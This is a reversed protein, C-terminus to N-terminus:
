VIEGLSKTVDVVFIQFLEFFLELENAVKRHADYRSPAIAKVEIAWAAASFTERDKVFQFALLNRVLKEIRTNDQNLTFQFTPQNANALTSPCGAQPTTADHWSLKASQHWDRLSPRATGHTSVARGETKAGPDASLDCEQTARDETWTM